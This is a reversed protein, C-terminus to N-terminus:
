SHLRDRKINAALLRHPREAARAIGPCNGARIGSHCTAREPDALDPARANLNFAERYVKRDQLVIADKGLM